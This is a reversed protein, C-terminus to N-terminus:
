HKKWWGIRKDNKDNSNWYKKVYFVLSLIM